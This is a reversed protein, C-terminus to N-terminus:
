KTAIAIKIVRESSPYIHCLESVHWGPVWVLHNDIFFLPIRNRLRFPVKRESFYTSLPRERDSGFPIFTDEERAYRVCFEPEDSFSDLSLACSTLTSRHSDVDHSLYVHLGIEKLSQLPLHIDLPLVPKDVSRKEFYVGDYDVRGVVAGPLDFRLGASLAFAKYLGVVTDKTIYVSESEYFDQYLRLLVRRLTYNTIFSRSSLVSKSIYFVDHTVEIGSLADDTYDDLFTHVDQIYSIYESLAKRYDTNIPEAFQPLVKRIHNRTYVSDTNTSDISYPLNHLELYSLIDDKYVDILPRFLRIGAVTDFKFIGQGRKTGKFLQHLFTEHVDDQHHGTCIVTYRFVSAYHVLYRRRLIRAAHEVSLKNAEAYRSVPLKRITLSVDFRTAIEKVLAIESALEDKSRLQHNFYILHIQTSPLISCLRDLLFVSDPGGSFSVLVPENYVIDYM